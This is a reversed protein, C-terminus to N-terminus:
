KKAKHLYHYIELVKEIWCTKGIIAKGRMKGNEAVDNSFEADLVQENGARVEIYTSSSKGGQEFLYERASIECNEYERGRIRTEGCTEDFHRGYLLISRVKDIFYEAAEALEIEKLTEFPSSYSSLASFWEGNQAHLLRYQAGAKDQRASFVLRNNEFVEFQHSYDPVCFYSRAMINGIKLRKGLRKRKKHQYKDGYQLATYIVTIVDELRM